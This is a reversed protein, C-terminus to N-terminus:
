KHLGHQAAHAEKLHRLTERVQIPLPQEAVPRRTFQNMPNTRLVPATTVASKGFNSGSRTRAFSVALNGWEDYDKLVTKEDGDQANINRSFAYATFANNNDWDAYAGGVSGRGINSAEVLANEDLPASSGDSYNMSFSDTCPSNEILNCITKGKLGNLLYYREAANITNPTTSLGAFQYMYNMISYHNPKYNADDNGGHRLGLNHGLEHMLTSAQFNILMNRSSTGSATFGYGGLSVILDNGHLEAVGSSGASGDANLSNAFLAYHFILNRRADFEASKYDYFSVCGSKVVGSTALEACSAFEVANGGGLNFLAPDFAPAHLAGTDLHLAINKAAFADVIKQLAERRPTLAPDSSKMYDIEVFIDRRGSRAGMAHLDLGAYTGGAIKASDPIGDLDSDVVGPAIDNLGAPTAFNVLSWDAGTNTDAMGNSVLRVISKGHENAGSPLSDVNRGNWADAGLPVAMSTGFRVFDATDGARVLEVSGNANWFPVRGSNEVYVIQSSNRLNDHIKGAVVFHAGAPVVISPLAFELPVLSNVGTDLRIHSSRLTYSSLNVAESSRNFVEVWAVDNRFYNTAVESIILSGGEGVATSSLSPALGSGPNVGDAGGGGGCGSLGSVILSLLAFAKFASPSFFSPV